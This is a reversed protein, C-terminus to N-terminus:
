LINFSNCIEKETWNRTGGDVMNNVEKDPVQLKHSIELM